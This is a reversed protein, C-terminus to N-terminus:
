SEPSTPEVPEDSDEDPSEEPGGDEKCRDVFDRLVSPDYRTSRPPIRTVKIKKSKTLTWLKRKSIGLYKAAEPSTLLGNNANM